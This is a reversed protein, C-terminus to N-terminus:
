IDIFNSFRKSDWVNSLLKNHLINNISCYQKHKRPKWKATKTANITICKSTHTHQVYTPKTEEAVELEKINWNRKQRLMMM